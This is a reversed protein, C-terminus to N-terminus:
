LDTEDFNLEFHRQKSSQSELAKSDREEFVGLGAILRSQPKCCLDRSNAQIYMSIRMQKNTKSERDRREAATAYFREIQLSHKRPLM